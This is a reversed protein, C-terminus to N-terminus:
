IMGYVKLNYTGYSTRTKIVDGKKACIGYNCGSLGITANGQTSTHQFVTTDNIYLEGAAGGGLGLQGQIVCDETATYSQGAANFTFLFSVSM